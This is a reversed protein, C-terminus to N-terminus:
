KVSVIEIDGDRRLINIGVNEGFRQLRLDLTGSGVRLGQIRVVPLAV